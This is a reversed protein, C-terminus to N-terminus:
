KQTSVFYIFVDCINNKIEISLEGDYKKLVSKVNEIGLGLHNNKSSTIGNINNHLTNVCTNKVDIINFENYGYVHLKIFKNIDRNSFENAEIANDLINGFITILDLEFIDRLCEEDIRISFDIGRELCM